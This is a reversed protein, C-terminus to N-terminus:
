DFEIEVSEELWYRDLDFDAMKNNCVINIAEEKCEEKTLSYEDDEDMENEEFYEQIFQVMKAKPTNIDFVCVVKTRNDVEDKFFIYVKKEKM